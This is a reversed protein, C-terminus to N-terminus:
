FGYRGHYDDDDFADKYTKQEGPEDYLGSTLQEPSSPPTAQFMRSAAALAQGALKGADIIPRQAALQRRRDLAAKQTKEHKASQYKKRPQGITVKVPNEVEKAGKSEGGALGTEVIVPPTEDFLGATMPQEEVEVVPLKTAGRTRHPVSKLTVKVSPARGKSSTKLMRAQIKAVAGPAGRASARKPAAAPTIAVRITPKRANVAARAERQLRARIKQVATSM